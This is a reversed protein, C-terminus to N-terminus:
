TTSSRRARPRALDLQPRVALVRDPQLLEARDSRAKVLLEDLQGLMLQRRGLGIDVTGLGEVRLRRSRRALPLEPRVGGTLPLVPHLWQLLLHSRHELRLELRPAAVVVLVDRGHHSRQAALIGVLAHAVLRGHSVALVDVGDIGNFCALGDRTPCVVLATCVLHSSM